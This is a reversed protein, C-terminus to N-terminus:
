LLTHDLQSCLLSPCRLGKQVTPTQLLEPQLSTPNAEWLGQSHVASCNQVGARGWGWGQGPERGASGKDTAPMPSAWGQKPSPLEGPKTGCCSSHQSPPSCPCSGPARLVSGPWPEMTGPWGRQSSPVAAPCEPHRRAMQPWGLAGTGACVRARGACLTCSPQGAGCSGLVSAKWLGWPCLVRGAALVGTIAGRQQWSGDDKGRGKGSGRGVVGELEKGSGGEWLCLYIETRGFKALNMSPKGFIM